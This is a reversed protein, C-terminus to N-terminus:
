VPLALPFTLCGALCRPGQHPTKRLRRQGDKCIKTSFVFVWSSTAEKLTVVPVLLVVAM